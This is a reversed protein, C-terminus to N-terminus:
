AAPNVTLAPPIKTTENVIRKPAFTVKEREEHAEQIKLSQYLARLDYGYKAICAERVQRVEAVITDKWM